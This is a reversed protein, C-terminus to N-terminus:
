LMDGAAPGDSSADEWIERQPIQQDRRMVRDRGPQPQEGAEIQAELAVNRTTHRQQQADQRIEDREADDNAVGGM